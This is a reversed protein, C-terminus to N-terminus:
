EPHKTEGEHKACGIMTEKASRTEEKKSDLSDTNIFHVQFPMQKKNIDELNPTGTSICSEM